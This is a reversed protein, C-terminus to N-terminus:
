CLVCSYACVWASAGTSERREKGDILPIYLRAEFVAYIFRIIREFATSSDINLGNVYIFIALM